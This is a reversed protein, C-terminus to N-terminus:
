LPRIGAKETEPLAALMAAVTRGLIPHRWDPAIEAWPILVFARDQLRPHPLILTDPARDRQTAPGLAIWAEATTTDPLIEQGAAILDLDLTRSGWRAERRRGFRAEVGHLLGLIEAAPLSSAFAAVANVFDPGSGPPFAPTRYLRSMARPALGTDCLATWAALITAEPTGASSPENAGLAVFCTRDKLGSEM